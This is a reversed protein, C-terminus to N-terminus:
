QHHHLSEQLYPDKIPVLPHESLKKLTVLGFLGLAGVPLGIEVLGFKIAEPSIAPYVMLYLDLWHGVLVVIAVKVLIGMNRKTRAPMLIFFPVLWNILINFIFLPGWVTGTRVIFYNTEEPMDSYWILMYQSFWIYAWFTTFAFLLKGLDHLHEDTVIGNLAGQKQLWVLLIITVAISSAFFGSFCYVGFITSFWHPELSMIWDFSSLWAALSFLVIFLASLRTNKQTHSLNGDHDQQRSNALIAKTFYLWIAFYVFARIIFFSYGLWLDKFGTLHEEGTFAPYIEYGLTITILIGAFGIPIIGTMAESVRRTVVSWGSAAVYNICIFFVAGLGLGILYYANVLLSAWLNERQFVLGVFAALAGIGLMVKLNKITTEPVKFNRIAQSELKSTVADHEVNDITQDMQLTGESM